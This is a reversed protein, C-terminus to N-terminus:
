KGKHKLNMEILGKALKEPPLEISTIPTKRAHRKLKRSSLDDPEIVIHGEGWPGYKAPDKPGYIGLVKKEFLVALHLPGSDSGSMWSSRKLFEALHLVSPMQPALHVHKDNINQSIEECIEKEGPGFSLLIDKPQEKLFIKLAEAWGTSEYRKYAGFISVGPHIVIFDKEPLGASLLRSSVDTKIKEPLNIFPRDDAYCDGGVQNAFAQAVAVKNMSMDPVLLKKQYLIQVQEKARNSAPGCKKKAGAMLSTLSSRLNGQFDLSLDYKNKRLKKQLERLEQIGSYFKLSSLKGFIAKRDLPIINDIGAVCELLPVFATETIFDIQANKFARRIGPIAYLTHLVDGLASLRVLLIKNESMLLFVRATNMSLIKEM